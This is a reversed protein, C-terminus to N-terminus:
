TLRRWGRCAAREGILTRYLGSDSVNHAARWAALDTTTEIRGSDVHRIKYVHDHVSEYERLLRRIRTSRRKGMLPLLQQMLQYALDGSVQFTYRPLRGRPGNPYPGRLYGAGVLKFLKQLVDRDTMQCMVVIGRPSSARSKRTFCGEGELLGAVWALEPPALRRLKTPANRTYKSIM